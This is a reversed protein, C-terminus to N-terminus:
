LGKIYETPKNEAFKLLKPFTRTIANWRGVSTKYIKTIIGKKLLDDLIKPNKTVIEYQVDFIEGDAIGNDEAFKLIKETNFTWNSKEVPILDGVSTSLRGGNEKATKARELFSAKLEKEFIDLFGKMKKYTVHLEETESSKVVESIQKKTLEFQEIPIIKALKNM